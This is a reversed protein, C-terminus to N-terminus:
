ELYYDLNRLTASAGLFVTSCALPQLFASRTRPL